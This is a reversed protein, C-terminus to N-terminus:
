QRDLLRDVLGSRKLQAAEWKSWPSYDDFEPGNRIFAAWDVWDTAAVEATNPTPETLCLGIFVPCIENEVVGLHEARYRFHPLALQLRIGHLGLEEALRRQAAGALPEGPAPHGCCANSWVGPWTQKSWARQQVLMQGERNFLFISFASHLPTDKTHIRYKDANGIARGDQNLLVVEETTPIQPAKVVQNNM